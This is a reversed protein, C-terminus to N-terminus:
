SRLEKCLAAVVPDGGAEAEITSSLQDLIGVDKAYHLTNRIAQKADVESVGKTPMASALQGAIQTIQGEPNAM